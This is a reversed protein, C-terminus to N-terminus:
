TRLLPLLGPNSHLWKRKRMRPALDKAARRFLCFAERIAMIELSSRRILAIEHSARPSLWAPVKESALLQFPSRVLTHATHRWREVHQLGANCLIERKKRLPTYNCTGVREVATGLPGVHPVSM